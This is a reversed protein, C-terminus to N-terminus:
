EDENKGLLAAKIKRFRQELVQKRVRFVPDHVRDKILAKALRDNEGYQAVYFISFSRVWPDVHHKAAWAPMEVAQPKQEQMWWALTYPIFNRTNEQASAILAEFM